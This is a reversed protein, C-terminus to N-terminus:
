WANKSNAALWNVIQTTAGANKEVFISAKQGANLRQETNVQLQTLIPAIQDPQNAVFAAGLEVLSTAEKFKSYNPGIVIPKEWVAAELTNHIGRGFGGGIYAISAYRYLKSLMGINDIILVRANLLTDNKVESLRISNVRLNKTIESIAHENVEHPAIILRVEPTENIWAILGSNDQLWTSGAVVTFYNTSFTKAFVLEDSENKVTIVRDFRTDGAISTQMVGMSKLLLQSTEDQVFLHNFCGLMKRGVAGWPKFFYQNPRFIGSILITTCEKRKLETLYHLWFDYKVFIAIKPKIAAVFRKANEKTDLPLYYVYNAGAYDKRIEFGSPSFFTLIIPTQPHLKKLAELVPRGQEFEGLSPCHMWICPSQQQYETEIKELLGKRGSLWKKAKDSKVAALQVLMSYATIGLNYLWTMLQFLFGSTKAQINAV